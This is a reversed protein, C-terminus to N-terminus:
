MVPTLSTFKYLSLATSYRRSSVTDPPVGSALYNSASITLDHSGMSEEDLNGNVKLIGTSDDIAFLGLPSLHGPTLASSSVSM